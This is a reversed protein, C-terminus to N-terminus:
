GQCSNMTLLKHFPLASALDLAKDVRATFENKSDDLQEKQSTEFFGLSPGGEEYFDLVGRAVKPRKM